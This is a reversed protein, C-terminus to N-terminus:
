LGALITRLNRIRAEIAYFYRSREDSCGAGVLGLASPPNEEFMQAARQGLRDVILELTETYWKDAAPKQQPFDNKCDGLLQLVQEGSRIRELIWGTEPPDQRLNPRQTNSGPIPDCKLESQDKGETAHYSTGPPCLQRCTYRCSGSGYVSAMGKGQAPKTVM